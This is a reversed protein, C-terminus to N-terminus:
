ETTHAIWKQNDYMALEKDCLKIFCLVSRYLKFMAYTTLPLRDIVLLFIQITPLQLRQRHRPRRRFPRLAAQLRGDADLRDGLELQEPQEPEAGGITASVDM